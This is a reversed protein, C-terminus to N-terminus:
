PSLGGPQSNQVGEGHQSGPVPDRPSKRAGVTGGLSIPSWWGQKSSPGGVGSESALLRLREVLSTDKPRRLFM